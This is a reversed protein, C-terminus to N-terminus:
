ASPTPKPERSKKRITNVFSVWFQVTGVLMPVAILFGAVIITVIGVMEIM